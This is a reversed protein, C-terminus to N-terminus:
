RSIENKLKELYDIAKDLDKKYDGKYPARIIYKLINGLYFAKIGKANNGWFQIVSKIVKLCNVGNQKYYTKM